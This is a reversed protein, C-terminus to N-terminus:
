GPLEKLAKALRRRAARLSREVEYLEISLGERRTGANRDAMATIRRNLDELATSITSLEARDVDM